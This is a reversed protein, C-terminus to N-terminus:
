DTWTTRAIKSTFTRQVSELLEISAQDSPSWLQSCYDLKPQILCKWITMMTNRSRRRFTRMAWGVMSSASSVVNGIHEGFKLDNSIEVGLDRLHQKEEIPTLDPSLYQNDPVSNGPWYRLCEFKDCNFTMNVRDAWSYITALDQQLARCDQDVDTISKQVRTDDVYSNTTTGVSVNSAIDAIHLLFLVPGLVTGQPVGSIVPSLGSIVGDVAVAQMRHSSNLFSALWMGTKGLIKADKLKHLLVGTEVKDFAKSFDLYICDVGSGQELGDLITDWHSLLQTLTSRMARSGHQGSPLINNADIHKVLAKRLVREFVKILHSTLAVPRYNKPVSKSGGKHIPCILVLLLEAPIKGTDMSARWLTYLPSALQKRCTKLLSAPVGDPGASASGKLDACAKEIDDPTFVFDDLISDGEGGGSFHGAVDAVTWEPRPKSFVSNYQQRLTEATFAVDPNLKGSASDLFPGIKSKTKQRSKAFSFFSKPNSKISFIAKDEQQSNEASYDVNLQEELDRKRQILVALKPMSSATLIKQKVKSLRRWITRRMKNVRMKSKKIPKKKVPVHRELVALVKHHFVNLAEATDTNALQEFEGWDINGMDEQIQEWPALLFNLNKYRKGIECLFQPEIVESDYKTKYTVDMTVLKHDSFSPWDDTQICSVLDSDNTFMLDLIEVAHTVQDVQQLLSHKSAMDILQSAQLRDQKGGVTEGERHNAVVPFLFGEESRVWNITEKRFNFDGMVTIIPTPTPLTSLIDDLKRLMPKFEDFRTDPPRYVVAVITDLQHVKVALLQCVGNDFTGLVDGTLDDRLYVAVGGGDRGSRDCRLIHYGPM